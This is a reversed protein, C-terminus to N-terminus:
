AYNDRDLIKDCQARITARRVDTYSVETKVCCYCFVIPLLLSHFPMLTVLKGKAAMIGYMRTLTPRTVQVYM